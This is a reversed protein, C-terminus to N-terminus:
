KRDHSLIEKNEKIKELKKGRTAWERLCVLQSEAQRLDDGRAILEWVLAEAPKDLMEFSKDWRVLEALCTSPPDIFVVQQQPVMM